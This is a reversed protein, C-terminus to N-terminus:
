AAKEFIAAMDDTHTERWGPDQRLLAALPSDKEIVVLRIDWKDFTAQWGRGNMTDLWEGLIEDDYLDTRGDVFVPYDPAAYM